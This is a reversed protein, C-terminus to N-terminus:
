TTPIFEGQWYPPTTTYIYINNLKAEQRKTTQILHIDHISDKIVLIVWFGLVHLGPKLLISNILSLSFFLLSSSSFLSVYIAYHSDKSSSAVVSREFAAEAVYDKKFIVIVVTYGFHYAYNHYCIIIFITIVRTFTRKWKDRLSSFTMMIM